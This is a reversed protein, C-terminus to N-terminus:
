LSLIKPQTKCVDPLGQLSKISSDQSWLAGIVDCGLDTTGGFSWLEYHSCAGPTPSSLLEASLPSLHARSPVLSSCLSTPLSNGHGSLSLILESAFCCCVADKM